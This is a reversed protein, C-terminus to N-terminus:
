KRYLQLEIEQMYDSVYLSNKSRAQLNTARELDNWVHGSDTGQM